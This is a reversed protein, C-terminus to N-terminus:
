HFQVEIRLFNHISHHPSLCILLHASSLHQFKLVPQWFDVLHSELLLELHTESALQLCPLVRWGM